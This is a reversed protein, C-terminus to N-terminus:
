HQYWSELVLSVLASVVTSIGTISIGIIRISGITGIMGIAIGTVRGIIGDANMESGTKNGLRRGIVGRELFVHREKGQM